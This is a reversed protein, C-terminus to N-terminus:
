SSEREPVHGFLQRAARGVGQVFQPVDRRTLRNWTLTVNALVWLILIRGLLMRRVLLCIVFWLYVPGQFLAGLPKTISGFRWLIVAWIAVYALMVLPHLLGASKMFYLLGLALLMDIFLDSRGIWSQTKVGSKRALPGDLADTTWATLVFAAALDLGRSGALSGLVTLAVSLVLRLGTMGDAFTKMWAM